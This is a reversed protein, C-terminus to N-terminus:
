PPCGCARVEGGSGGPAGGGGGSSGTQGGCEAKHVRKWHQKQCDRNCYLATRCGGCRSKAGPKGCQM